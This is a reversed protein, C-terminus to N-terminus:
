VEGYPAAEQVRQIYRPLAAGRLGRQPREQESGGDGTTECKNEKQKPLALGASFGSHLSKANVV